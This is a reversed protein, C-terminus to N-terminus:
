TGAAVGLAEEDNSKQEADGNIQFYHDLRTWRFIERVERRIGSLVLKSHKRKLRRQLVILGSLLESSMVEVNSCDVFLVRCDARDAISNWEAALGVVQDQHLFLHNLLCV